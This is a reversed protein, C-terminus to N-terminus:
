RIIIDREMEKRIYFCVARARSRPAFRRACDPAHLFPAPAASNGRRGRIMEEEEEQTM